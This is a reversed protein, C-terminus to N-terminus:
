HDKYGTYRNDPAPYKDQIRWVCCSPIVVRNGAGLPGHQWMVYQRYATHRMTRTDQSPVDVRIDCRSNIAVELVTGNLCIEYFTQDFTICNRRKCCKREKQTPMEHCRLCKCWPPVSTLTPSRNEDSTARDQNIIDVLLSKRDEFVRTAM